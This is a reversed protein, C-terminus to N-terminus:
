YFSGADVVIIVVGIVSNYSTAQLATGSYQGGDAKANTAPRGSGEYLIWKKWKTM